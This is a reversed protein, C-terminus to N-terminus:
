VPRRRFIELRARYASVTDSHRGAAEEESFFAALLTPKRVTRSLEAGAEDITVAFEAVEVAKAAPAAKVEGTVPADSNKAM